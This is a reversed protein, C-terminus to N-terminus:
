NKDKFEQNEKLEIDLAFEGVPEFEYHKNHYLKDNDINKSVFGYLDKQTELKKGELLPSDKEIYRVVLNGKENIDYRFFCYKRQDEGESTIDHINMFKIKGYDTIFGRTIVTYKDKGERSWVVFYENENFKYVALRYESEKGEEPVQIWNKILREDIEAGKSSSLPVASDYCGIVGFCFLLLLFLSIWRCVYNM